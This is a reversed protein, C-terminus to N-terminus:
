CRTLWLIRSQFDGQWSLMLGAQMLTSGIVKIDEDWGQVLYEANVDLGQMRVPPVLINIRNEVQFAIVIAKDGDESVYQVSPWNSDNPSALRYQDGRIVLPSIKESLAIFDPIMKKEEETFALPNLEFGFSGCMMAVHARFELPTTRGSQHNPCASVHGGMASPPYVLSTGFQIALRDKADTNDSTWTQPWYHLIGADFRGGGSACGEWLIKPFKTTLAELVRYLGLIYAHATSPRTMEHMGRNMDWKVYSINASTLLATISDIIYDQVETRSLDLVLQQRQETRDYTGSHLVWDPHKEYLESQANVMEPEVWIGFHMGKRDGLKNIGDVFTALGDPFRKPNIIWDGLGHSDDTRPYKVGFWGDDMVFLKVGFGSAEKAIKTLLDADFDFYTAEWNNLLVPRTKMTWESKM